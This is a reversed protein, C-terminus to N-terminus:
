KFMVKMEEDSLVIQQIFVKAISKREELNMDPWEEIVSDIDYGGFEPTKDQVVLLNLETLLKKKEIELAEVKTGIMAMLTATAKPVQELYDNMDKEIKAIAAKLRNIEPQNSTKVKSTKVKLDKIYALLQEEIIEELVGAIITKKRGYCYKEIRGLCIGYMNKNHKRGGRRFCIAKGCYECRVLGSLWSKSGTGSSGFNKNNLLRNQVRLWLESSIIGEHMGITAYEETGSNYKKRAEGKTKGYLVVGNEGIYDEPPNNIIVGKSRLFVYVDADARVYIPNGMIKAVAHANFPNGSSTKYENDHLWRQIQGLSIGANGYLEYMQKVIEAQEPVPVMKRTKKGMLMTEVRKYGFPTKGGISFGQKARAYFNETVRMQITEREFQAFVMLINYIVSNLASSSTNVVPECRSKFTVNHVKFKNMMQAFDGVSRSIRDLKWVIVSEILGGEIDKMMRHFEPRDTNKGSFGRDAYVEYQNGTTVLAKCDEIQTEISISDVRDVSQRVYIADM